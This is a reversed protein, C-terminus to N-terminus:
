PSTQGPTTSGITATTSTGQGNAPNTADYATGALRASRVSPQVDPSYRTSRTQGKTLLPEGEGLEFEHYFGRNLYNILVFTTVHTVVQAGIVEDMDATNGGITPVNMPKDVGSVIGLESIVAEDESGFKIRCVNLFEEADLENFDIAVKSSIRIIDASSVVVGTVPLDSPRPHLDDDTYAFPKSTTIGDKTNDHIIEPAQNLSPLRKLYYAWYEVNNYTEKRRLGYAKRQAPSLDNNLERLVFPVPSFLGTDTAEHSVPTPVHIGSKGLTFRHGGQGICYYGINPVTSLDAHATDNISFCENLTTYKPFEHPRGLLKSAQLSIGVATRCINVKKM